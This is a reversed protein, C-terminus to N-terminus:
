GQPFPVAQTQHPGSALQGGCLGPLDEGGEAGDEQVRRLGLSLQLEHPRQSCPSTQEWNSQLSRQLSWDSIQQSAAIEGCLAVTHLDESIFETLVDNCELKYAMQRIIGSHLFYSKTRIYQNYLQRKTGITFTNHLLTQLNVNFNM